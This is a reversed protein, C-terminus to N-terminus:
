FDYPDMGGVCYIDGNLVKTSDDIIGTYYISTRYNYNSGLRNLATIATVCKMTSAPRLHIRENFNYIQKDDSLDWVMIGIQMTSTIDSKLIGDLRAKINEQWSLSNDNQFPLIVAEGEEDNEVPREEETTAEKLPKGQLIRAVEASDLTVQAHVPFALLATFILLQLHRLKM